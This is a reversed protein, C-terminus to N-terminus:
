ACSVTQGTSRPYRRSQAPTFCRSRDSYLYVLVELSSQQVRVVNLSNRGREPGRGRSSSATGATVVPVGEESDGDEGRLDCRGWGLHARHIHGSLVLDVGWERIACLIRGPEPLTHVPEGDDPGVLNHHVVLVRLTRPGIGAFARAAFDLQADTLRGNVIASHPASSNLAVVRASTQRHAGTPPPALGPEPVAEHSHAGCVDLVSDLRECIHARYNRYPTFLREWVRYLPVDHNGATVVFPRPTLRDLFRKADQYERKRARQTLDGSVVVVDPDQERVLRLIAEAVVPRHPKGFHLDSAHLIIM